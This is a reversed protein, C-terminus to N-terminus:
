TLAVGTTRRAFFLLVATVAGTVAMVVFAGDFGWGRNAALVITPALAGGIHGLGDTMAVSTARAATPFHEATYTYLLPILFGVTTSAVFGFVMVIVPSTLLGILVLAVAWMFAGAMTLERRPFRDSVRTSLLAGVLFGIGTVVLFSLSSSLSYGHDVLLTPALTLWGYNGIYYVFWIAIFLLAYKAYGGGLLTRIPWKSEVSQDLGPRPPPLNAGVLVRATNEAAEIERTAREVQGHLLLWRASQPVNRRLMLITLGGLGGIAFLVRWGAEFTPVLARAVFPVVALGAFAMVTVWSTYRGRLQAPSIEAVYTTVCAIEAGIGMGAVFRFIILWLLNPSVAAAISGATFLGVSVMMSLRRGRLDSLTSDALAGFVYGALSSTVALSAATKSVEFQTEIVPLAAGITVVDFFAFFYGAGIVWLLRRGYPWVPIRDLRALLNAQYDSTAQEGSTM